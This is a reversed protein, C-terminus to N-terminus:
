LVTGACTCCLYPVPMFILCVDPHAGSLLSLSLSPPPNCHCRSPAPGALTSGTRGPHWGWRRPRPAARRRRDRRLAQPPPNTLVDSLFCWDADLLCPCSTSRVHPPVSSLNRGLLLLNPGFSSSLRPRARPPRRCGTGGGPSSRCGYVLCTPPNCDARM